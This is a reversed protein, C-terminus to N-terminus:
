FLFLLVLFELTFHRYGIHTIRRILLRSDMEGGHILRARQGRKVSWPLLINQVEFPLQLVRVSCADRLVLLQDLDVFKTFLLNVQALYFFFLNSRLWVGGNLEDAKM